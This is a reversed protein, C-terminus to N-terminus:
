RGMAERLQETSPARPRRRGVRVGSMGVIDRHRARRVPRCRRHSDDALRSIRRSGAGAPDAVANASSVSRPIVPPSPRTRTAGALGVNPCDEFYLIRVEM